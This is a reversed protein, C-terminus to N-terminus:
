DKTIDDKADKLAKNALPDYEEQGKQRGPIEETKVTKRNAPRPGFFSTFERGFGSIRKKANELSGSSILLFGVG